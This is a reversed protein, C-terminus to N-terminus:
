RTVLCALTAGAVRAPGVAELLVVGGGRKLGLRPLLVEVVAVGVHGLGDNAVELPYLLVALRRLHGDSGAGLLAPQGDVPRVEQVLPGPLVADRLVERLMDRRGLA